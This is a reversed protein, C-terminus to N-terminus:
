FQCNFLYSLFVCSQCHVIVEILKQEMEQLSREKEGLTEEMVALKKSTEVQGTEMTMLEQHRRKAEESARELQEELERTASQLSALRSKEEEVTVQQPFIVFICSKSVNKLCIKLSLKVSM